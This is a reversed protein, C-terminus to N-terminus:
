DYIWSDLGYRDQLAALQQRVAAEENSYARAQEFDHNRIADALRAKISNIREQLNAVDKPLVSADRTFKEIISDDHPSQSLAERVSHLNTGLTSAVRSALSNEERLIGLLLHQACIPQSSWPGAEEAAYLLCRRSEGSLPIEGAEAIRKGRPKAKEVHRWVPEAAWPSGFFRNALRQDARVLGMLLHETEIERSGVYGAFYRSWFIASRATQTYREFM